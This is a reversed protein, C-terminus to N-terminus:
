SVQTTCQDLIWGPEVLEAGSIILTSVLSERRGGRVQRTAHNRDAEVLILKSGSPCTGSTPERTVVEGGGLKVISILDDKDKLKSGINGFRFRLNKFLPDVGTRTWPHIYEDVDKWSGVWGASDEIWKFCVLIVGAAIAKCLKITRTPTNEPLFANIVMHTVRKDFDKKITTRQVGAVGKLLVKQGEDLGTACLVPKWRLTSALERDSVTSIRRARKGSSRMNLSTDASAQKRKSRPPTPTCSSINSVRRAHSSIVAGIARNPTTNPTCDSPEEDGACVTCSFEGQPIHLLRACALHVSRSCTDCMLLRGGNGCEFCNNDHEKYVTADPSTLLEAFVTDDVEPAVEAHEYCFLKFGDEIRKAGDYLACQFHYRRECGDAACRTTPRKGACHPYHCTESISKRLATAVNWFQNNVEYVSEAYDGCYEHVNVGRLAADAVPMLKGRFLTCEKTTVPPEQPPCLLCGDQGLEPPVSPPSAKASSRMPPMPDPASTRCRTKLTARVTARFGDNCALKLAPQSAPPSVADIAAEIERLRAVIHNFDVPAARISRKNTNRNCIACRPRKMGLLGCVCKACFVHGCHLQQADEIYDLCIPCTISKGLELVIPRLSALEKTLENETKNSLRHTVSTEAARM